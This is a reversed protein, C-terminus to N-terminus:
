DRGHTRGHTREDTRVMKPGRKQVSEIFPLLKLTWFPTWVHCMVLFFEFILIHNQVNYFSALPHEFVPGFRLGEPWEAGRTYDLLNVQASM